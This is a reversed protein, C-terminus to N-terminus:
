ISEWQWAMIMAPTRHCSVIKKWCLNYLVIKTPSSGLPASIYTIGECVLTLRTLQICWRVMRTLYRWRKTWTPCFREFRRQRKRKRERRWTVGKGEWLFYFIKNPSYNSSSSSDRQHLSHWRFYRHFSFILWWRSATTTLSSSTSAEIQYSLDPLSFHLGVNKLPSLGRM